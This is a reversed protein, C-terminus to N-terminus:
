PALLLLSDGIEISGEEAPTFCYGRTGEGLFQLVPKLRAPSDEGCLAFRSFEVCPDAVSVRTLALLAGSTRSRFVLGGSFDELRWARDSAVLINEGACGDVIHPGYEGQMRRYHSTLGFSVERGPSSKSASHRGHHVDLITKGDAEFAAGLPSVRLLSVEALARPDYVRRPRDGRKLSGNQIQLRVVRGIETTM